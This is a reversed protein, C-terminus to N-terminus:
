AAPASSNSYADIMRNASELKTTVDIFGVLLRDVDERLKTIDSKMQVNEAKLVIIDKRNLQVVKWAFAEDEAAAALKAELSPNLRGFM